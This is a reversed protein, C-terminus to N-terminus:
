EFALLKNSGFGVGIFSVRQKRRVSVVRTKMSLGVCQYRVAQVVTFAQVQQRYPDALTIPLQYHSHRTLNALLYDFLRSYAMDVVSIPFTFDSM